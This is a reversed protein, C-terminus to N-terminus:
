KAFTKLDKKLKGKKIIRISDNFYSGLDIKTEDLYYIKTM